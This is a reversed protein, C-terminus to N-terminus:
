NQDVSEGSPLGSKHTAAPGAPRAVASGPGSHYAGAMFVVEMSASNMVLLRRSSQGSAATSPARRAMRSQRPTISAPETSGAARMRWRTAWASPPRGTAVTTPVPRRVPATHAASQLPVAAWASSKSSVFKARM